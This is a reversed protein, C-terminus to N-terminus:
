LQALFLVIAPFITMFFDLPEGGIESKENWFEDYIEKGAGIVMTAIVGVVPTFIFSFLAYILTGAAFHKLKDVKQVEKIIWNIM